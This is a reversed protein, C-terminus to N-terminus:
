APPPNFMNVDISKRLGRKEFFEVAEDTETWLHFRQVGKEGFWGVLRALVETGIGRGRWEPETYFSQLYGLRGDPLWYTPQIQLIVAVGTAILEDGKTPHEAIVVSANGAESADRLFTVARNMWLGTQLNQESSGALLQQLRVVESMDSQSAPRLVVPVNSGTTSMAFSDCVCRRM